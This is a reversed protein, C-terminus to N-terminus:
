KEKKMRNKMNETIYATYKKQGLGIKKEVMKTIQKREM